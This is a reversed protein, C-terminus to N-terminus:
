VNGTGQLNIPSEFLIERRGPQDLLDALAEAILRAGEADPHVSESMLSFRNYTEVPGVTPGGGPATGTRAERWALPFGHFEERVSGDPLREAFVFHIKRGPPAAVFGTYVGDGAGEDCGAGDDRLPVVRAGKLSLGSVRALLAGQPSRGAPMRVRPVFGSGASRAEPCVGELGIRRALDAQQDARRNRFLIDADLFPVRQETAVKELARAVDDHGFAFHAVIVLAGGARAERVIAGVNAETEELPVRRGTLRSAGPRPAGELSRATKLLVLRLAHYTRTRRLQAQARELLSGDLPLSERDPTRSPWADNFGYAVIVASARHRRLDRWLAVGQRSSYGPVGANVVEVPRGPWRSGLLRSLVWPYTDEEDLKDGFTVSDGLCLIRVVGSDESPPPGRFGIESVELRWTKEEGDIVPLRTIDARYGPVLSWLRESPQLFNPPQRIGHAEQYRRTQVVMAGLGPLNDENVGFVNQTFAPSILRLLAEPIAFALVLSAVALVIVGAIRDAKRAM